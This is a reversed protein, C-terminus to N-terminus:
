TSDVFRLPPWTCRELLRLPQSHLLMCRRQTNRPKVTKKPLSLKRATSTYPTPALLSPPGDSSRTKVIQRLKGLFYFLAAAHYARAHHRLAVTPAVLFFSISAESRLCEVSVENGKRIEILVGKGRTWHHRGGRNARDVGNSIKSRFFFSIRTM